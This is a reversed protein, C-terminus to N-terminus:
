LLGGRDSAHITAVMIADKSFFQLRIVFFRVNREVDTPHEADTVEDTLHRLRM